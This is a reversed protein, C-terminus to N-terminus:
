AQSEKSEPKPASSPEDLEITEVKVLHKVQHIMGRVSENDPLINSSSIKNLGLAQVTRRNIPKNGITSKVLTVKLHM